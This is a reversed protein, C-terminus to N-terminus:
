SASHHARALWKKSCVADASMGLGHQVSIHSGHSAIVVRAPPEVVTRVVTAAMHQILDKAPKNSCHTTSVHAALVWGPYLLRAVRLSINHYLNTERTCFAQHLAVVSHVHLLQLMRSADTSRYGLGDHGGGLNSYRTSTHCIAASEATSSSLQALLNVHTV